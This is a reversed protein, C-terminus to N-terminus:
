CSDSSICSLPPRKTPVSVQLSPNNELEAYREQIFALSELVSRSLHCKTNDICCFTFLDKLITDSIIPSVHGGKIDIFKKCAHPISQYLRTANRYPILEDEDSHMIIIPCNVSRIRNKSPMMDTLLKMVRAAYSPVVGWNGDMIIDDLSSFTSMLILCYCPNRSAIYTAVAGGMSMGWVILDDSDMQSRLYKYMAEGDHCAVHQNPQGQSRGYGSYDFVVLNLKQRHCIDIVFDTYSINGYNGHCFLVTKRGPYNNFHWTSLRNEVMIKKHPITPEMLHDKKPVFLVSQILGYIIILCYGIIIFTLLLIMVIISAMESKILFIRKNKNRKNKNTKNSVNIDLLITTTGDLTMYDDLCSDSVHTGL